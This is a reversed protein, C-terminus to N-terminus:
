PAVRYWIDGDQGTPPPPNTSITFHPISAASQAAADAQAEAEAIRAAMDAAVDEFFVSFTQAYVRPAFDAETYTRGNFTIPWAM